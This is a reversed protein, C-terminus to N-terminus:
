RCWPRSSTSVDLLSPLPSPSRSPHPRLSLREHLSSSRPISASLGAPLPSKPPSPAQHDETSACRATASEGRQVRATSSRDAGMGSPYRALDSTPPLFLSPHGPRGGARPVRVILIHENSARLRPDVLSGKLDLHSLSSIRALSSRDAGM